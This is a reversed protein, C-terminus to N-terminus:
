DKQSSQTGALVKALRAAFDPDTNRACYVSGRQVGVRKAAGYITKEQELAAFFRDRWDTPLPNWRRSQSLWYHSICPQAM